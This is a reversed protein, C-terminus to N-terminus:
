PTVDIIYDPAVLLSIRGQGESMISICDGFVWGSYLVM